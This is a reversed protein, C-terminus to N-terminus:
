NDMGSLSVFHILLAVPKSVRVGVSYSSTEKKVMKFIIHHISDDINGTYIDLIYM